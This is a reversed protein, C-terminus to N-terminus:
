SPASVGKCSGASPLWFMPASDVLWNAAKLAVCNAARVDDWTADMGAARVVLWSTESDVAPIGPYELSARAASVDSWNAARLGPWSPANDADWTPARGFLVTAASVVFWSVESEVAPTAAM